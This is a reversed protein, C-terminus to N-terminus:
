FLFYGHLLFILKSYPASHVVRHIKNISNHLIHCKDSSVIPLIFIGVLYKIYEHNLFNAESCVIILRSPINLQSYSISTNPNKQYSPVIKNLNSVKQILTADLTSPSWSSPVLFIHAIKHTGFFSKVLSATNM